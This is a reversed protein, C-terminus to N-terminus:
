LTHLFKRYHLHWVFSHMQKVFASVTDCGIIVHFVPLSKSKEPRLCALLEHAAIYRFNKGNELALWLEDEHCEQAVVDMDVTRILGRKMVAVAHLKM